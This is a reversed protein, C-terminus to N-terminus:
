KKMRSVIDKIEKSDENFINMSIMKWEDDMSSYFILIYFYRDKSKLKGLSMPLPQHNFDVYINEYGDVPNLKSFDTLRQKLEIRNVDKNVNSRDTGIFEMTGHEPKPAFEVIKTIDWTNLAKSLNVYMEEESVFASCCLVAIVMGVIKKM